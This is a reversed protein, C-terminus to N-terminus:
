HHNKTLQFRTDLTVPPWDLSVVANIPTPSFSLAGCRCRHPDPSHHATVTARGRVRREILFRRVATATHGVFFGVALWFIVDRPDRFIVVVVLLMVVAAGHGRCWWSRALYPTETTIRDLVGAV